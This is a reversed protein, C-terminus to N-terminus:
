VLLAIKFCTGITHKLCVFEGKIANRVDSFACALDNNIILLLVGYRTM